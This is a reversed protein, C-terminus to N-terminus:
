NIMGTVLNEFENRMLRLKSVYSKHQNIYEDSDDPCETPNYQERATCRAHNLILYNIGVIVSDIAEQFNEIKNM